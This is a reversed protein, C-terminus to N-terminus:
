WTDPMLAPCHRTAVGSILCGPTVFVPGAQFDHTKVRGGDRVLAQVEIIRMMNKDLGELREGTFSLSSNPPRLTGWLEFTRIIDTQKSLQLLFCFSGSARPLPLQTSVCSNPVTPPLTHNYYLWESEDLSLNGQQNCMCVGWGKGSVVKVEQKLFLRFTPLPHPHLPSSPPSPAPLTRCKSSIKQFSKKISM